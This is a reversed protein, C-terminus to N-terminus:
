KQFKTDRVEFKCTVRTFMVQEKHRLRASTEYPTASETTIFQVQLISYSAPDYSPNVYYETRDGWFWTVM